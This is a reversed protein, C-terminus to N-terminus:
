QPINSSLGLHHCRLLLTVAAQFILHLQPSVQCFTPAESRRDPHFADNKAVIVRRHRKGRVRTIRARDGVAKKPHRNVLVRTRHQRRKTTTTDQLEQAGRVRRRSYGDAAKIGYSYCPLQACVCANLLVCDTGLYM